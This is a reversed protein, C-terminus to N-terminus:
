WDDFVSGTVGFPNGHIDTDGLMPTGDINVSSETWHDDDTDDRDRRRFWSDDEGEMGVGPRDACSLRTRAAEQDRYRQVIEQPIPLHLVLHRVGVCVIGLLVCYLDFSM